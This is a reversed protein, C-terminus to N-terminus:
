AARVEWRSEPGRLMLWTVAWVLADLRDPSQKADPTWSCLQDELTPFAGCHHVLGRAYLDSVPQARTAKGRTAVVTQVNVTPDISRVMAPLYDGGNNREVVLVDAQTDHYLAVARGMAEHPTWRGSDDALVWGHGDFSRGAAVIGTEDSDEGSTVAPDVAVAVEALDAFGDAAVRLADIGALTWLAGEVDDLLEGYLEQRGLRTGEYRSRLEVIAAESLNAANDFTSGRTIAADPRSTLSRVLKTPKPTTTVVTRPRDGLRLGFQLQDWTDPYRWAALEDCWAGHHQPGRLRDPEEAAFLKVRSRNSLVLEGLSRNWTDVRDDPLIALLGSEGEVCTDRADAYTPAVIAWRTGPHALAQDKVWEAGTRTKGWGRGALILWVLWDGPPALQDPRAHCCRGGPPVHTCRHDDLIRHGAPPHWQYGRLLALRQLKGLREDPQM